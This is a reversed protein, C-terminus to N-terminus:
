LCIPLWLSVGNPSAFVGTGSVFFNFLLSHLVRDRHDAGLRGTNARQDGVERDAIRIAARRTIGSECPVQNDQYENGGPARHGVRMVIPQVNEV